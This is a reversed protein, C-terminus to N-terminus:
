RVTLVPIGSRRVVRATTSGLLREDGGRGRTGMAILDAQTGHAYQLIAEEPAGRLIATSVPLNRDTAGTAVTEVANKGGEKLLGVISRPADELGYTETDVVYIVRVDAGYREAITLASEAAREPADSGDTPIVVRNYMDYGATPVTVTEDLAVTLVPVDVRTLVRQTTSGLHHLDSEVRGRTGMVVLDIDHESVYEPIARYPRGERIQRVVDLGFSDARNQVDLTTAEGRDELHDHLTQQEDEPLQTPAPGTEVVSLTHLSADFTRALDLARELAQETGSKGDTPLLITDYM